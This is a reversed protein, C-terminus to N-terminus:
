GGHALRKKVNDRGLREPLEQGGQRGPFVRRYDLRRRGFNLLLGVPAQTAKLYNIVQGLEDNTLLHPFAKIEVVVTEAVFLDLYFTALIHGESEVDVAHQSSAPIELERLRSALAREYVEEKYGPGLDNHVEMAAGIIRYTLQNGTADKVLGPM